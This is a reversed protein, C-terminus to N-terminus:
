TLESYDEFRDVDDITIDLGYVADPTIVGGPFQAAPVSLELIYGTHTLSSAAKVGVPTDVAIAFYWATEDYCTYAM